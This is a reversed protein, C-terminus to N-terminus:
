DVWVRAITKAQLVNLGFEGASICYECSFTTQQSGTSHFHGLGRTSRINWWEWHQYNRQTSCCQSTTNVASRLIRRRIRWWAPSIVQPNHTAPLSGDAIWCVIFNNGIRHFQTIGINAEQVDLQYSCTYSKWIHVFSGGINIELGWPRRFFDWDQFLGLRCHQAANGVHSYLRYNRTQHIYSM